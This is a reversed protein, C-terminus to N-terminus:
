IANQAAAAEWTLGIDTELPLLRTEDATPDELVRLDPGCQGGPAIPNPRQRWRGLAIRNDGDLVLTPPNAKRRRRHRRHMWSESRSLASFERVKRMAEDRYEHLAARMLEAAPGIVLMDPGDIPDDSPEANSRAEDITEEVLTRIDNFLLRDRDRVWRGLDEDIEIARADHEGVEGPVGIYRFALAALPGGILAALVSGLLNEGIFNLVDCM